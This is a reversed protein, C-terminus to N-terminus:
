LEENKVKELRRKTIEMNECNDIGVFKRGLDSPKWETTGSGCFPDLVLDGDQTSALVIKELSIKTKHQIDGEAKRHSQLVARGYM